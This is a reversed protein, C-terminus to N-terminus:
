ALMTIGWSTDPRTEMPKGPVAWPDSLPLNGAARWEASIRGLEDFLVTWAARFARDQAPTTEGRSYHATVLASMRAGIEPFANMALAHAECTRAWKSELVVENNTRDVVQWQSSEGFPSCWPLPLSLYFRGTEEPSPGAAYVQSCLDAAQPHLALIAAVRGADDLDVDRLIARIGALEPIERVLHAAILFGYGNVAKGLYASADIDVTRRPVLVPQSAIAEDTLRLALALSDDGLDLIRASLDASTLDIDGVLAVLPFLASDEPVPLDFQEAISALAEVVRDIIASDALVAILRTRVDNM